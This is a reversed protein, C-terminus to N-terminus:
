VTTSNKRIENTISNRGNLVSINTGEAGNENYHQIFRTNPIIDFSGNNNGISSLIKVKNKKTRRKLPTWGTPWIFWAIPSLHEPDVSQVRSLGGTALSGITGMALSVVFGSIPVLLFAIHYLDFVGGTLEEKPQDSPFSWSTTNITSMLQVSCGDTYTPYSETVKPYMLSGILVWITITQGSLLGFIVGPATAFPCLLALIYLGFLPGFLAGALSIAAHLVSGILGVFFAMGVSVVGYFAGVLKCTLKIKWEPMKSLRTHRLFDDWTVTALANFGSSLTSLSASFVCAVFLGPVGPFDSLTDMVFYPM